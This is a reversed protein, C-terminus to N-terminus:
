LLNYNTGRHNSHILQKCLSIQGHKYHKCKKNLSNMQWHLKNLNGPHETGFYTYPVHTVFHNQHHKNKYQMSHAVHGKPMYTDDPQAGLTFVSHLVQTSHLLISYTLWSQTLPKSLTHSDQSCHEKESALIATAQM